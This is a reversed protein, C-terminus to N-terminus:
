QLKENMRIICGQKAINYKSSGLHHNQAEVMSMSMTMLNLASSEMM